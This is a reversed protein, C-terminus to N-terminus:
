RGTLQSGDLKSLITAARQLRRIQEIVILDYEAGRLGKMSSELRFYVKRRGDMAFGFEGTQLLKELTRKVTTRPLDLVNAVSSIDFPKGAARGWNLVIMVMLENFDGARNWKRATIAAEVLTKAVVAVQPDNDRRYLARRM